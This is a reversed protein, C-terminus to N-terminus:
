HKMKDSFTSLVPEGEGMASCGNIIHRRQLRRSPSPSSSM